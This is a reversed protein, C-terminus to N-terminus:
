QKRKALIAEVEHIQQLSYEDEPKLALARMYAERAADFQSHQFARDGANREELFRGEIQRHARYLIKKQIEEVRYGRKVLTDYIICAEGYEQEM